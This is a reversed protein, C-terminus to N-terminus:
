NIVSSALSRWQDQTQALQIWESDNETQSGNLYYEVMVGTETTTESPKGVLIKDVNRMNVTREADWMSQVLANWNM